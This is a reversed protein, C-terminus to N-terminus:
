QGVRVSKISPRHTVPPAQHTLTNVLPTLVHGLPNLAIDFVCVLLPLQVADGYPLPVCVCM